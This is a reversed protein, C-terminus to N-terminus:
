INNNRKGKKKPKENKKNKTTAKGSGILREIEVQKMDIKYARREGEEVKSLAEVAM